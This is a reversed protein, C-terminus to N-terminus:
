RPSGAATRAPTSRSSGPRTTAGTRSARSATWSATPPRGGGWTVSSEACPFTRETASLHFRPRTPVAGAAAPVLHRGVARVEAGERGRPGAWGASVRGEDCGPRERTLPHHS